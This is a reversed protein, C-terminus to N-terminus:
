YRVLHKLSPRTEDTIIRVIQIISEPSHGQKEDLAKMFFLSLLTSMEVIYSYTRVKSIM